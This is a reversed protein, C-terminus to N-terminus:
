MIANILFDLGIKRQEGIKSDIIDFDTQDINTLIPKVSGSSLMSEIGLKDAFNYLRSDWKGNVMIMPRHFITSFVALHFSRGIVYRAHKILNLFEIPGSALHRKMSISYPISKLNVNSVVIPLGTLQSLEKAQSYVDKIFYPNYLFIYEGKVIPSEDTLENWQNSSLLLTPDCVIKPKVQNDTYLEVCEATLKERVSIYDFELLLRGIKDRYSEMLRSLKKPASGMSVAYAIKRKDAGAFDLFYNWSFDMAGINWIQDSGAIFCDFDDIIDEDGTLEATEDTLRIYRSMFDEFRAYKSKLERKFPAYAFHFLARRKDALQNIPKFYDYQEKQKASRMNITIPDLEPNLSKISQQLAYNQLMSGYNHAAHFTLIGIKKM